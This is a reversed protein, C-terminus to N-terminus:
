LRYLFAAIAISIITIISLITVMQLINIFGANENSEINNKENYKKEIYSLNNIIKQMLDNYIDLDLNQKAIIDINNILKQKNNVIFEVKNKVKDYFDDFLSDILKNRDCIVGNFNCQKEKLNPMSIICNEFLPAFYYKRTKKNCILGYNNLNRNVQNTIYGFIIMNLYDKTITKIDEQSITPLSKLIEISKNIIEKYEGKSNHFEFDGYKRLFDSKIKGEKIFKVVKFELSTFDYYEEYDDVAVSRSIISDKEKNADYVTYEEASSVGLLSGIQCIAIELDNDAVDVKEIKRYAKYQNNISVKEIQNIGSSTDGIKEINVGQLVINSKEDYTRIYYNENEKLPPANKIAADVKNKEYYYKGITELETEIAVLNRNDNTYKEKLDQTQKENLNYKKATETILVEVSNM